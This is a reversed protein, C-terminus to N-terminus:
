LSVQLVHDPTASQNPSGVQNLDELASRVMPEVRPWLNDILFPGMYQAQSPMVEQVMGMIGHKVAQIIAPAQQPDEGGRTVALLSHTLPQQMHRMMLVTAQQANQPLAATDVGQMVLMQKMKGMKDSLRSWLRHAIVGALIPAAHEVQERAQGQLQQPLEDLWSTAVQAVGTKSDLSIMRMPMPHMSASGTAIDTISGDSVADTIHLHGTLVMRVGCDALTRAVEDHNAVIYNPLFRAEGDIHELLHHHMMAIVHKGQAHAESAQERLWQLTQSKVRGANHYVDATDGRSRLRNEEDRNSDIGLLVLGPLPECAYSLSTSDRRADSGYGYRAYTQAFEDRTITEVPTAKGGRYDRANPCSIDHNGPIVLTHVGHQELRELHTLLRKHSARAGNHTLDGTILLLAPREAIARDVIHQMIRDSELPLKMDGSAMRQAAAGDDYLEPALLHIDSIVMIRYDNSSMTKKTKVPAAALCTVLMICWLTSVIRKM